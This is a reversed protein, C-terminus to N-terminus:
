GQAILIGEVGEKGALGLPLSGDVFQQHLLPEM